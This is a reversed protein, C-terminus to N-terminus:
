GGVWLDHALPLAAVGLSADLVELALRLDPALTQPGAAHVTRVMVIRVVVTRNM